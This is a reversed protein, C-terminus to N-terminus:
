CNAGYVRRAVNRRRRLSGRVREWSLVDLIGQKANQPLLLALRRQGLCPYNGLGPVSTVGPEVRRHTDVM